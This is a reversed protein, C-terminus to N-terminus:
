SHITVEDELIFELAQRRHMQKPLEMAVEYARKQEAPFLNKIKGPNSRCWEKFNDDDNIFDIRRITEILQNQVYRERPSTQLYMKFQKLETIFSDTKCIEKLPGGVFEKKKQIYADIHKQVQEATKM